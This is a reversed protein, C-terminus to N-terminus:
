SLRTERQWFDALEPHDSRSLAEGDLTILPACGLVSGTLFVGDAEHLDSKLLKQEECSIGKSRLHTMLHARTVGPLIMGDTPPTFFAGQREVFLNSRSGELIHGDAACLIAEAPTNGLTDAELQVREVQEHHLSKHQAMSRELTTTVGHM